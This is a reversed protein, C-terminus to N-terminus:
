FLITKGLKPSVYWPQVLPGASPVHLLSSEKTNITGGRLSEVHNSEFLVSSTPPNIPNNVWLLHDGGGVGATMPDEVGEGLVTPEAAGRCLHTAQAVYAYSM